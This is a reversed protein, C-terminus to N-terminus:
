KVDFFVVAGKDRYFPATCVITTGNTAVHDCFGSAYPSPGNSYKTIVSGLTQNYLAGMDNDAYPSGTYLTKGVIVGSHGLRTFADEGTVSTRHTYQYTYIKGEQINTDSSLPAGVVIKNDSSALLYGGFGTSNTDELELLKRHTLRDYGYVKGEGPAGVLIFMNSFAIKSGFKGYNARPSELVNPKVKLEKHKLAELLVSEAVTYVRGAQTFKDDAYPAGVYLTNTDSDVMLSEGILKIGESGFTTEAKWHLAAAHEGNSQFLDIRSLGPSSVILYPTKALVIKELAAGFRAHFKGELKQPGKIIFEQALTTSDVFHLQGNMPSSVVWTDDFYIVSKGYQSYEEGIHHITGDATVPEQKYYLKRFLPRIKQSAKVPVQRKQPRKGDFAQCLEWSDNYPEGSLWKNYSHLCEVTNSDMEALGGAYYEELNGFLFPSKAAYHIYGYDAIRLEAQLATRGRSMCYRLQLGSVKYGLSALITQIDRANFDWNNQVWNYDQQSAMLRHLYIMDGGVDLTQHAEDNDGDFESDTMVQLLGQHIGLSHWTVDAVQHSLVGILFAQLDLAGSQDGLQLKRRVLDAGAALFPPWHAEEAADSQEMCGYFADPYFAGARAFQMRSKIPPPLERELRHLLTQHVAVGCSLARCFLLLILM